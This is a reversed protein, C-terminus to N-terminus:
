RVEEQVDIKGTVAASILASRFERLRDIADQVKGIATDIKSTEQDIYTAIARQETDPMLPISIKGLEGRTIHVMGIIGHAQKEVYFTLARLTWYLWEKHQEYNVIRFIHQNVYHLGTRWWLFPGFSTGRNGSWGFLLDGSTAQFRAPVKRTTHNFNQGGNLNEIRIIPVGQDGWEEPKFAIGNVFEAVHKLPMVEWHAPVEGLWEVGSDKIPVSPDLGRTVARTILATRKEQLLEILREKRTVLEDIKETERDLFVAITVQEQHEPLAVPENLYSTSDLNQIGTSQKISRTNVRAAYLAAHLYTLFRPDNGDAVPVRAVFNSCVAVEDHGYLVVAGVPQKEGGGSKELLLDGKRLQRAQAAKSEISRLTPDDLRVGFRLRDFDAVRVCIMDHVGDAEDGWTGNQCGTVTSRLRRVRWHSPVEGLWSVKSEKYESYPRFRRPRAKQIQELAETMAKTRKPHM